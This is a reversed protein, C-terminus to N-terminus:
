AAAPLALCACCAARAAAALNTGTRNAGAAAMGELWCRGVGAQATSAWNVVSARAMHSPRAMFTEGPKVGYLLAHLAAPAVALSGPIAPSRGVSGLLWM